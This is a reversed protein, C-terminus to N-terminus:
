GFRFLMSPCDDSKLYGDITGLPSPWLSPTISDKYVAAFPAGTESGTTYGLDGHGAVFRRFSGGTAAIGIWYRVGGLLPLSLLLEKGGVLDLPVSATDRILAGPLGDSGEEYIAASVTQGAAAISLYCKIGTFVQVLSTLHPAMPAMFPVLYGRNATLAIPGNALELDYGTYWRGSIYRPDGPRRVIDGGEFVAYGQAGSAALTDLADLTAPLEYQPCNCYLPM